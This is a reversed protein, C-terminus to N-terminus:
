SQSRRPNVLKGRHILMRLLSRHDYASLKGYSVLLRM